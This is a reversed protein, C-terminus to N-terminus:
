SQGWISFTGLFYPQPKCFIKRMFAIVWKCIQDDRKLRSFKFQLDVWHFSFPCYKSIICLRFYHMCFAGQNCVSHTVIDNRSSSMKALLSLWTWTRYSYKLIQHGSESKRKSFLIRKWYNKKSLWKSKQPAIKLSLFNSLFANEIEIGLQWIKWRHEQVTGKNNILNPKTLIM